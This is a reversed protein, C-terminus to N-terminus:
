PDCHIVLEAAVINKNRRPSLTLPLPHKPNIGIVAYTYCDGLYLTSKVNPFVLIINVMM